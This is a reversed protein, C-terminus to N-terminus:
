AVPCSGRGFVHLTGARCNQRGAPGVGHVTKSAKIERQQTLNSVIGAGVHRRFKQQNGVHNGTLKYEILAQDRVMRTGSDIM